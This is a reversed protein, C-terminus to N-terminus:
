TTVPINRVLCKLIWFLQLSKWTDNENNGVLTDLNNTFYIEVPSMGRAVGSIQGISLFHYSGGNINSGYMIQVIIRMM